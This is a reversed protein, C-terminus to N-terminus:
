AVPHGDRCPRRAGLRAGAGSLGHATPRDRLGAPLGSGALGVVMLASTFALYAGTVRTDSASVSVGCLAVGLLVSTAAMTWKHTARPLGNLYLIVGTSFWWCLVTYLLPWGHRM